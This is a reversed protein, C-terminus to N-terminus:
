TFRVLRAANGLILLDPVAHFFAAQIPNVVGLLALVIGLGHTFGLGLFINQRITAVVRKSLRHAFDIKSLDNSMLAIDSAEIAPEMGMAGMAIGVDAQKLAPADNIGDGIMAVTRGKEQLERIVSLKKDPFVGGYAKPIGLSRAVAEVVETRDGSLLVFETIGQGRLRELTEKADTRMEDSVCIMGCLREGCALYFSTHLASDTCVPMGEVNINGHKRDEIFHKSGLRYHENGYDVEVGHGSVSIYKDPDPVRIGEARAKEMIAKSLVHGSRKEAIAAMTIVDRDTHQEDVAQIGVVRPEGMTLTGTKDFILTDTKAFRELALGGRVLIGNRFAAVTGGLITLPTVLALEIPSGFVLMTIVLEIDRTVLWVGFIFLALLPTAILAIKDTLVHIKAKRAGADELLKEIRGSMTDAGVKTAEIVVSGSEVFTGAFVLEDKTKEKPTSEGTLSAENISASGSIVVGDVPIRAGTKVVIRMGSTVTEIPRVEERGDTQVVVDSPMLHTLSLIARETREEILHEFFQAVMVVILVITIAQAEGGIVAVVAALVFFLESGLKKKRLGKLAGWFVPIFALALAAFILREDVGSIFTTAALAAVFLIYLAEGPHFLSIKTRVNKLTSISM